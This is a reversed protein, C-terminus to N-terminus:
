ACCYISCAFYSRCFKLLSSLTTFIAQLKCISVFSKRVNASKKKSPRTASQSTCSRILLALLWTFSAIRLVSGTKLCNCLMYPSSLVLSKSIRFYRSAFLHEPTKLPYRFHYYKSTPFSNFSPPTGVSSFLHM